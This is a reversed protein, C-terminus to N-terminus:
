ETKEASNKSSFTAKRLSNLTDFMWKMFECVVFVCTITASIVVVKLANMNENTFIQLAVEKGYICLQIAKLKAQSLLTNSATESGFDRPFVLPPPRKTTSTKSQNEVAGPPNLTSSEDSPEPLNAALTVTSNLMFLTILFLINQKM